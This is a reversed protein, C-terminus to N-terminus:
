MPASARVTMKRHHLAEGPFHALIDGLDAVHDRLRDVPAPALQAFEALIRRPCALADHRGARHHEGGRQRQHQLEFEGQHAAILPKMDNIDVPAPESRRPMSRIVPVTAPASSANMM